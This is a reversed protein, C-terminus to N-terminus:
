RSQAATTPHQGRAPSQRYYSRGGLSRSNRHPLFDPIQSGSEFSFGLEAFTAFLYLEWIRADFGITQFQEVFNGDADEYYRMMTTIIERAPSYRPEDRLVRYLPHLRNESAITAFFDVPNGDNDDQWFVHDPADHFEEIKRELLSLAEEKNPESAFGDIYRYRLKEDRGLLVGSFDDDIRDRLLIGVVRESDDSHWSLEELYLVTWSQRSYGALANFRTKTIPKMWKQGNTKSGPRRYAFGSNPLREICLTANGPLYFLWRAPATLSVWRRAAVEWLARGGTGKCSVGRGDLPPKAASPHAREVL